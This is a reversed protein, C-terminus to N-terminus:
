KDPLLNAVTAGWSGALEFSDVWTINKLIKHVIGRQVGIGKGHIIRVRLIGKQRCLALYEPVLTHIDKPVFQHLDLVGDVPYEVPENSM